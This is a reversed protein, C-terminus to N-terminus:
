LPGLWQDFVEGRDGLRLCLQACRFVIVEGSTLQVEILGGASPEPRRALETEGRAGIELTDLRVTSVQDLEGFPGCRLERADFGILDADYSVLDYREPGSPEYVSVSGFRLVLEHNARYILEKVIADHLDVLEFSQKQPSTM